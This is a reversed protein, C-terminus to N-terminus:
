STGDQKGESHNRAWDDFSEKTQLQTGCFPCFYVPELVQAKSPKAGSEGWVHYAGLFLPGSDRGLRLLAKDEGVSLCRRLTECCPETFIM